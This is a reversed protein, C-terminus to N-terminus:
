KKILQLYADKIKQIPIYYDANIDDDFDDGTVLMIQSNNSNSFYGLYLDVVRGLRTFMLGKVNNNCFLINTWASSHCGVIVKAHYFIDVKEELTLLHPEVFYYGEEKFYQEVENANTLCRWNSRSLFIKEHKVPNNKIKDVIPKVMNDILLTMVQRPIVVDYPAFGKGKNILCSSTPIYYLRDCHISNRNKEDPVIYKKVSPHRVLVSDILEIVQKDTYTPMILTVDKDLLGAKEAYYLKPLFQIIFHSWGHAYVGILSVCEGSIYDVCDSKRVYINEQNYDYLNGDMPISKSFIDSYFKDWIVGHSTVIIDSKDSIYCDDICLIDQEAHYQEISWFRYIHYTDPVDVKEWTADKIHYAIEFLDKPNKIIPYCISDTARLKRLLTQPVFPKIYANYIKRTVNRM